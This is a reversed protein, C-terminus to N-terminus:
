CHLLHIQQEYGVPQASGDCFAANWSTAHALGVESIRWAEDGDRLPPLPKNEGTGTHRNADFDHGIFLGQDEAAGTGTKYV